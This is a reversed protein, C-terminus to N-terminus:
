KLGRRPKAAAGDFASRITALIRPLGGNGPDDMLGNATCAALLEREVDGRDLLGVQVFQFLAFGSKNLTANRTGPVANALAEIEYRLAAAAYASAGGNQVLRAVRHANVAATARERITPRKFKLFEIWAEPLAALPVDNILQYPRGDPNVSGAGIVMGGDAKCDVGPVITKSVIKIGRGPHLFYRHVSGSPSMVQRTNPLPGYEAELQRLATLGDVGHGEPTDYEIVVIGNVPGTPIGIRANPWRSFDAAIEAPDSTMGWKSGGSHKAAKYSKKSDPPVPFVAWRPTCGLAATVAATPASM